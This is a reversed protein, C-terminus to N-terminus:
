GFRRRLEDIVVDPTSRPGRLRLEAGGALVAVRRLSQEPYRRVAVTHELMALAAAGATLTEPQWSAAAEYSTFIVAGVSLPGRATPVHLSEVSVDRQAVPGARVDVAPDRLGLLQPYPWVKGDDDIVAMDDSLYEAGAALLSRVLTTKGSHTRGPLIVVRGRWVVAGAHVFTRRPALEAIWLKVAARLDHLAASRSTSAAISRRGSWVDYGTHRTGCACAGPARVVFRKRVWQSPSPETLPPLHKTVEAMLSRSSCRVEFRCGFGTFRRAIPACASHARDPGLPFEIAMTSRTAVM